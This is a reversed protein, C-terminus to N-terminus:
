DPPRPLEWYRDLFKMGTQLVSGPIRDRAPLPSVRDSFFYRPPDDWYRRYEVEAESIRGLRELLAGRLVYDTAYRRPVRDVLLLAEEYRGRDILYYIYSWPYEPHEALQDRFMRDARPDNLEGLAVAYIERAQEWFETGNLKAFFADLSATDSLAVLGHAVRTAAGFFDRGGMSATGYPILLEAAKIYMTVAERLEARRPWAYYQRWLVEGVGEWAHRSMPYLVTSRRRARLVENLLAHPDFDPEGPQPGDGIRTWARRFQEYTTLYTKIAGAPEGPDPVFTGSILAQVEESQEWPTM